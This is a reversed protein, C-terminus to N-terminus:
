FSIKLGLQVQRPDRAAQAQGFNGPLDASLIRTASALPADLVVNTPTIVNQVSGSVYNTQNTLNFIEFRLQASFRNSLRINKYFSLDVQFFDPGECEFREAFQRTDGLVAGNITFAGPNIIQDGSGGCPQGTRLPRNNQAFGTGGIGGGGLGPVSTVYVDIPTGTSYSVVAGVTWDGLVHELFGGTGELTPLNWILSANLVHERFLAANGFDLDIERDTIQTDSSGAGSDALSDNAKFRSWTYAVQLRSGRGFRSQFLTQLSDYESEGNNEWFIIQDGGGNFFPRLSGDGNGGARIFDLRDSVGNGNLDASPVGNIDSRRVLHRGRNGVYGVEITSNSSLRQEWTVNFQFNYPTENNPDIGRNPVGFASSFGGSPLPDDLTRTGATNRVFPPQGGFDLQINVRERQFYQGFGARIVSNGTGNIDWALGLRPAFNNTDDEVFGRNVGVGGGLLGADACPSTGPAQALGNCADGGLAANFLAPDFAAIANNTDFPAEFFSYRVGYDITLNDAVKWSDGVYAEIDTWNLEPAPQSSAESFGHLMNRILIDGIRNGSNGGGSALGTAGWFQPAEFGSSGCCNEAKESDTYLVGAKVFHDGFVQQYDNKFSVLDLENNWPSINWL